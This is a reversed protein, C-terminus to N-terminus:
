HAANIAANMALLQIEEGIYEVDGVLAAVDRAGVCVEALFHSAADHTKQMMELRSAISRLAEALLAFRHENGAITALSANTAHSFSDTDQAMMVVSKTMEHLNLSLNETARQFESVSLELQEQQLRCICGFLQLTDADGEDGFRRHHEALHSELSGFVTRMHQLRQRTIDQFQLAAIMEGFNRTVEDSREKLRDTWQGTEIRTESFSALIQRATEVDACSQQMLGAQMRQESELSQELLPHLSRVRDFIEEAKQQILVGLEKLSDAMVASGSASQKASEIRTSVRLSHLTKIVKRLGAMPVDLRALLLDVDALLQCIDVSRTQAEDLWLSCREVMLQLRGLTNENDEGRLLHLVDRVSHSLKQGRGHYDQVRNGFELFIGETMQDVDNLIKSLDDFCGPQWERRAQTPLDIVEAYKKSSETM